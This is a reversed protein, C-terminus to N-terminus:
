QSIDTMMIDVSQNGIASLDLVEVKEMSKNLFKVTYMAMPTMLIGIAVNIVTEVELSCSTMMLKKM